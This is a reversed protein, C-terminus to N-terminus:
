PADRDRRGRAMFVSLFTPQRLAMRGEEEVIGDPDLLDDLEEATFTRITNPGFRLEPVDDGLDLPCLHTLRAQTQRFARDIRVAAVGSPVALRAPAEESWRFGLRYVAQSLVFNVSEKSSTPCYLQQCTERLNVFAPATYFNGTMPGGLRWLLDVAPSLELRIQDNM